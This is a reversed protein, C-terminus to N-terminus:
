ICYPDETVNYQPSCIQSYDVHYDLRLTDKMKQLESARIRYYLENNNQALIKTMQDELEAERLVM